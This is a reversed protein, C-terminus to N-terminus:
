PWRAEPPLSMLIAEINGGTRLGFLTGRDHLLNFEVYRGRRILQADREAAGYPTRFRRAVIAPYLELFALGVDRVFAFDAAVDGTAHHDFFIGGVGRAEGRHPLFFYRDCWPRFREYYDAGHRDCCQQLGAHFFAADEAAEATDRLMPTLDGGGGFWGQRTVIMRTNMHGTPAWPNRPHAVVSVGAAWFRPDAAAGPIAAAFEPAFRGTVVSVNVGAKEFVAGGRLVAMTGGGGESGDETPRRWDTRVFAADSGAAREIAEFRLCLQDRLSAFWASADDRLADHAITDRLADPAITMAGSKVSVPAM